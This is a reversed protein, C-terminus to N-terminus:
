PEGRLAAIVVAKFHNAERIQRLSEILRTDHGAAVKERAHDAKAQALSAAADAIANNLVASSDHRPKTKRRSLRM